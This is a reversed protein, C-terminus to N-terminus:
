RIAYLKGDACGVYLTDGAVVPSSWVSSPLELNWKAKGTKIDVASLSGKGQMNYNQNTAVYLTDGALAPSAFTHDKADYVWLPKGTFDVASVKGGDSQGVYAIGGQIAPSSPVWSGEHSHRWRVQGSAADIGFLFGSRSGVVVLGDEVACSGQVANWPAGAMRTDVEWVKKGSAAKLAYVKGDFSGCFVRGKVVAPTARVARGTQFRWSEKGSDAHFARICGDAGGVYVRGDVVTPSSHFMDWNDIQKLNSAAGMRASWRVAGNKIDLANLMGDDTPLYAMGGAIAVSALSCGGLKTRYREKGSADLAVFFPGAAFYIQGDVVAPTTPFTPQGDMDTLTQYVPWSVAEFSWAIAGKPPTTPAAYVGTHAPNGRFMPSQAELALPLALFLAPLLTRM